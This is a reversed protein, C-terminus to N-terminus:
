MTKLKKCNESRSSTHKNRCLVGFVWELWEYKFQPSLKIICEFIFNIYIVRDLLSLNKEGNRSKGNLSFNKFLCRETFTDIVDYAFKRTSNEYKSMNRFKNEIHDILSSKFGDDGLSEEFQNLDEITALKKLNLKSIKPDLKAGDKLVCSILFDIKREIRNMQERLDEKPEDDEM